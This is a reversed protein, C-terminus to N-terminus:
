KDGADRHDTQTASVVAFCLFLCSPMSAHAVTGSGACGNLFLLLALTAVRQKRQRESPFPAGVSPGWHSTREQPHQGKCGGPTFPFCPTKEGARAVRAVGGARTSAGLWGAGRKKWPM